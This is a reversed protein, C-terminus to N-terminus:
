IFGRVADPGCRFLADIAALQPVFEGAGQPYVPHTWNQFSVQIGAADFLSRDLYTASGAASYYHTAALKRCIALVLKSSAGLVDLDSARVLRTKLGLWEVMLGIGAINLEALSTTDAGVWAEIAPFYRKFEPAAGLSARISGLHKRRWTRDRRAITVDKIATDLPLDDVPVTLWFPEGAVTRLRNRNQWSRQEFQVTDLLVFVDARAIQEFYGLWPLYTPQQIAVTLM